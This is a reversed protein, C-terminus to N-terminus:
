QHTSVDSTAEATHDKKVTPPIPMIRPPLAHGKGLSEYVEHAEDESSCPFVNEVIGNDITEVVWWMTPKVSPYKWVSLARCTFGRVQAGMGCPPVHKDQIAKWMSMAPQHKSM